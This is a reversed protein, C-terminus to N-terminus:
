DEKDTSSNETTSNNSLVNSLLPQPLAKGDTTVDSKERYEHRASLILKTIVPSYDGSLGGQLLMEEQKEVIDDLLDSFKPNKKAWEYLTSKNVKLRVALGPMTPVNPKVIRQYTEGKEGSSKVYDEYTTVCEALYKYGEEILSEDYKTPRAM